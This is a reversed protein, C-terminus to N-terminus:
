WPGTDLVSPSSLPSRGLHRQEAMAREREDVVVIEPDGLEWITITVPVPM